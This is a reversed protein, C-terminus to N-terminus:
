NRLPRGVMSDEEVGVGAAAGVIDVVAVAAGAVADVAVVVVEAVATKCVEFVLPKPPVLEVPLKCLKPVTPM